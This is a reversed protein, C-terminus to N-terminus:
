KNEERKKSFFRKLLDKSEKELIGRSILPDSDGKFHEFALVRSVVAGRDPDDAGFVLRSVRSQIIAGSCMLCPELTVYLTAGSLDWRGLRRAADKLAEIEAHSSIDHREERHNHGRGIIQGNLVIIAGVPVENEEFAAEAEELAIRMCEADSLM